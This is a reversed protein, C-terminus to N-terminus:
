LSDRYVTLSYNVDIEICGEENITLNNEETNFTYNDQLEGDNINPENDSIEDLIRKELKELFLEDEDSLFVDGKFVFNFNDEGGNINLINKSIFAKETENLKIYIKDSQQENWESQADKIFVFEEGEGEDELTIKVVGNEGQYYGDSDVYFEVKSYVVNNIYDEIVDNTINGNKTHIEINTNNMSDGGCDFIFSVSTVELEKWLQIITEKIVSLEKKNM